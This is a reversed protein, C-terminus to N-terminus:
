SFFRGLFGSKKKREINEIVNGKELLDRHFEYAEQSNELLLNYEQASFLTIRAANHAECLAFAYQNLHELSEFPGVMSAPAKVGSLAETMFQDKYIKDAAERELFGTEDLLYILYFYSDEGTEPYPNFYNYIGVIYEIDKM